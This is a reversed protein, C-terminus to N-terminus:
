KPLYKLKIQEKQWQQKEEKYNKFMKVLLWVLCLFGTLLVALAVFHTGFFRILEMRAGYWIVLSLGITMFLKFFKQRYKKDVETPAYIAALKFIVAVLVATAGILAFIKDVPEIMVRNIEFLFKTSFFQKLSM